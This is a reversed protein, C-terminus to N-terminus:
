IINYHIIITFSLIINYWSKNISNIKHYCNDVGRLICKIQSNKKIAIIYSSVKTVIIILVFLWVIIIVIYLGKNKEWIM